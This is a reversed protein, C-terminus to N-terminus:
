AALSTARRRMVGLGGLAGLLMWAAAPLPVVAPTPPTVIVAETPLTGAFLNTDNFPRFEIRQDINNGVVTGNVGGGFASIDALPALISFGFAGGQITLSTADVFNLLVRDNDVNFNSSYTLADGSLNIITTLSPDIGAFGGNAGNRLFSASEAESLNLIAIGNDGAGSTIQTGNQDSFDASAGTTTGLAGLEASLSTLATVFESIPIDAVNTNVVGGGNNNIIATTTGGIQANGNNLNVPNGSVDGGVILSGTVTGATGDDLGDSNVTYGNSTFDGGVFVTGETESSATLDGLAITNFSQLLNLQDLTAAQATSGILAITSIALPKFYM